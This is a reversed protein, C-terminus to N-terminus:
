TILKMLNLSGLFLLFSFGITGLCSRMRTVTGLVKGMKM